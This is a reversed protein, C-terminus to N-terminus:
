YAVTTMLYFQKADNRNITADNTVADGYWHWFYGAQMSMNKNFKYTAVLDLEQGLSTGNNSTGLPAGAINYVRDTGKNLNFWHMAALLTLKDVPQISAQLSYDVLNQGSFNDILGWYAHGLPFLSNFTNIDGSNPDSDGSGWYFLGTVKPKMPTSVWQHNLIASFFGASVTQEVGLLDNDHGFQYAGEVDWSYMRAVDGCYNKVPSKGAWRAGVTHRSGDMRNARPEQERLWLWYFDFTNNKMGHYTSYVGSFTRSADAKDRSTPRNINGTAANVPRTAFADIDWDDGKSIIRMGEFNRFTNSWGLPSVLHQSGYNLFQRGTRLIIPKGDRESIKLDVYAQLFDLQNDDIGLPALNEDFSSADIMEVHVGFDDGHYLEIYNRWRYLDYTNRTTNGAPRLRNNEDMYRYRLEGGFSFTWGSLAGDGLDLPVNKLGSFIPEDSFLFCPEDNNCSNASQVYPQANPVYQPAPASTLVEQLPEPLESEVGPVAPPPTVTPAIDDALLSFPAMMAVTAFTLKLFPIKPMITRAYFSNPLRPEGKRRCHM